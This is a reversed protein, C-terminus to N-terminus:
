FPAFKPLELHNAAATRQLDDIIAIYDARERILAFRAELARAERDDVYPRCATLSQRFYTFALNAEQQVLLGTFQYGVCLLGLVLALVMARTVRRDLKAIVGELLEIKAENQLDSLRDKIRQVERSASKEAFHRGAFLFLALGQFLIALSLVELASTEHLGKAAERYVDDKVASSGLTIVTLLSRVAWQGAPRLAVEWLGSGVSGLLITAAAGVVVKKWNSAKM